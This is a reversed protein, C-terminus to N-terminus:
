FLWSPQYRRGASSLDPTRERLAGDHRLETHCSACGLEAVLARGRQFPDAAAPVQARGAHAVITLVLGLAVTMRLVGFMQHRVRGPSPQQNLPPHSSPFRSPLWTKPSALLQPKRPTGVSRTM